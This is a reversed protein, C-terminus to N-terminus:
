NRAAEPSAPTDQRKFEVALGLSVKTPYMRVEGKVSDWEGIEFFTFDGPYKCFITKSDNCMDEILRMASGRNLQTFPEMWAETKSDYVSYVKLM